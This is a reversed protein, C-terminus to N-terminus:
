IWQDFATRLSMKFPGRVFKTMFIDEKIKLFIVIKIHVRLKLIIITLLVLAKKLSLM